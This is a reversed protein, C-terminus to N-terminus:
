DQWMFRILPDLDDRDRDTLRLGDAEDDDIPTAGDSDDFLPDSM